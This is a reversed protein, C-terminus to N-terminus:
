FRGVGENKRIGTEVRSFVWYGFLPAFLTFVWLVALDFYWKDFFFGIGLISSRVGNTMWTPPFLLAIIKLLSPFVTIPFFVGMLFSVGWQMLSILANAEKVKLVVAGFLLTMGYLPIAGVLIFAFALLIEGQFPDVGLILSGVLYALVAAFIGRVISYLATGAAVWIRETPSLYLAELTGTEMEWRLWNAMHWFALSVIIFTSSGLLMYAVYNSTGTNAAFAAEAGDGATARGLLIPMSALVIPTFVDLLLQGPYRSITLLRMRTSALVVSLYAQLSPSHATM